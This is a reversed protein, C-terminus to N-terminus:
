ELERWHWTWTGFAVSLRRLDGNHAVLDATSAAESAHFELTHTGAPLTVVLARYMRLAPDVLLTEAPQGDLAIQLHRKGGLSQLELELEVNLPRTNVVTWMARDGMWRWSRPGDFERPFFGSVEGTYVPSPAVSVALVEGGSFAAVRAFGEPLQTDFRRRTDSATRAILHTYGAAALKGALHPEDCDSVTRNLLTVRGRTLWRMSAAELDSRTCDIAVVETAQEVVWRHAATPLTDRWLRSPSAAYEIAVLAVLAIAAIRAAAWRTRSLVDIGLGAVLAAMLQVAVGFRAYSRFMPLARYLWASPRVFTVGAITREPSLSCLLAVIGVACLVPLPWLVTSTRRTAIWVGVAIVGLIVLGLGLTVQQELLGDGVGANTWVSQAFGGFWPNVVPPVFYAWWKASYKFLDLRNAAFASSRSLVLPAWRWIYLLAAAAAIALASCTVLLRRGAGPTTRVRVWWYAAIAVPTLVMAILGGYANSLTVAAVAAALGAVAAPSARDLCRWLALLYLPLWQIQAVQPHYASQAIHFPSFAFALAAVTAASRSLEIHRALLYAAAAALPFTLLVLWNYAAVAGSIRSILAGAVDTVPQTDASLAIPGDFQQMVTFPDHHRGVIEAGFVRTSPSRLVAAGLIAALLAACAAIGATETSLRPM